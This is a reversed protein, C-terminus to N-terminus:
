SAPAVKMGSLHPRGDVVDTWVVFAIGNRVALKPFGTGRGRGALTALQTRQTAGGKAPIRTLEVTQGKADERLWVLWTADADMAIDVRGQLADGTDVDIPAEFTRGADTSRAFRLVPREDPATYWAVVVNAGVAAAVPGNVPCASMKWGDAHVLAPKTWGTTTRRVAVIDRIEDPTRDRYVLLPGANTVAVDTGCCDCTDADIETEQSRALTGDFRAVRVTMAGPAHSAKDQAHEVTDPQQPGHTHAAGATRRGDLWAVGIADQGMPWMSVFGHETGTRDDNVAVPPSWHVGTDPSRTLMVDSAHPSEADAPVQLWQAWLAGDDTMVIHPTNAWNAVLTRGIAITKPASEWTDDGMYAAYQLANRDGLRRVWSLLLRGDPGVRNETVLFGYRRIVTTDCHHCRTNEWEGVRGPLNGPYVYKLGAQTAVDAIRLLDDSTTSRYGDTM